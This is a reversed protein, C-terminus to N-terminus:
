PGYPTAPAPGPAPKVLKMPQGCCVLEGDGGEVVHVKNGCMECLYEEGVKAM